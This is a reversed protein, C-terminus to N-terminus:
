EGSERRPSAPSAPAVKAKDGDAVIEEGTALDYTRYKGRGALVRVRKAIDRPVRIAFARFVMDATEIGPSDRDIVLTIVESDLLPEGVTFRISGSSAVFIVAVTEKGYDIRASNLAKRLTAIRRNSARRMKDYFEDWEEGEEDWQFRSLRRNSAFLDDILANTDDESRLLRSKVGSYIHDREEIPIRALEIPEEAAASNLSAMLVAVALACKEIFRM